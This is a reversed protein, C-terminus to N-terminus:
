GSRSGSSSSCRQARRRWGSKSRAPHTAPQPTPPAGASRAVPRSRAAHRHRVSRRRPRDRAPARGGAGATRRGRRAARAARGHGDSRAACGAGRLDGLARGPPLVRRPRRSDAPRVSSCTHRARPRRRSSARSYPSTAPAGDQRRPDGCSSSRLRRTPYGCAPALGRPQRRAARARPPRAGPGGAASGGAATSSRSCSSRPEGRRRSPRLVGPRGGRRIARCSVAISEATAHVPRDCDRGPREVVRLRAYRGTGAGAAPHRGRRLPLGELRRALYCLWRLSASDAWHLDDSRSCRRGSSPSTRRSGTSVTSRRLRRTARRTPPPRSARPTSSRSPSRRQVPSSSPAYRRRHQPLCRSSSSGSSASPSTARSSGARAHLVRLERPAAALRPSSGRRASGPLGRM